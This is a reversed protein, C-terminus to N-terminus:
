SSQISTSFFGMFKHMGETDWGGVGSLNAKGDEQYPINPEFHLQLWREVNGRLVFRILGVWTELSPMLLTQAAGSLLQPRNALEPPNLWQTLPGIHGNIRFTALPEDVVPGIYRYKSREGPEDAFEDLGRAMITFIHGRADALERSMPHRLQFLRGTKGMTVLGSAHFTFKPPLDVGDTQGEPFLQLSGDDVGGPPMELHGYTWPGFSCGPGPDVVLSGDKTVNLLLVQKSRQGTAVVVKVAKKTAPTTRALDILELQGAM